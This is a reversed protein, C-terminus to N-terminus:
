LLLDMCNKFRQDSVYVSYTLNNEYCFVNICIKNQTEIKCCDKKSVSFKGEGYDLDNIVKKDVKIITEAHIKLPNLHRIYCWLFCKNDNSKINILGEMLNNLKNLLELYTSGM